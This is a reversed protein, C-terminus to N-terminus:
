AGQILALFTRGSFNHGTAQAVVGPFVPVFVSAWDNSDLTPALTTISLIIDGPFFPVNSILVPGSTSDVGQFAGLRQTTM